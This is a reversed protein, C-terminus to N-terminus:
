SDHAAASPKASHGIAQFFSSQSILSLSSQTLLMHNSVHPLPFLTSIKKLGMNIGMLTNVM